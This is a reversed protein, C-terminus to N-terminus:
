EELLNMRAVWKGPRVQLTVWSPDFWSPVENGYTIAEALDSLTCYTSFGDSTWECELEGDGHDRVNVGINGNKGGDWDWGDEAILHLAEEITGTETKEDAVWKILEELLILPAGEYRPAPTALLEELDSVTLREYSM